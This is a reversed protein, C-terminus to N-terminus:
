RKPSAKCCGLVVFRHMMRFYCCYKHEFVNAVGVNLFLVLVLANFFPLLMLTNLYCWCTQIIGIHEYVVGIHEFVVVGGSWFFLLMPM